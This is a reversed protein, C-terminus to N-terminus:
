VPASLSITTILAEARAGAAFAAFTDAVNINDKAVLVGDLYIFVGDDSLVDFKVNDLTQGTTFTTRYYSTFRSATAPLTITTGVNGITTGPALGDIGGVAFPAPGQIAEYSGAVGGTGFNPGNYQTLFDNEPLFWATEFDADPGGSGDPIVGGQPNMIKWVQNYPVIEVPPTYRPAYVTLSVTKGSDFNDTVTFTIPSNAPFPGFPTATNYLGSAPLTINTYFGTSLFTGNVTVDFTMTDDGSDVPTGNNNRVLNTVTAAITSAPPVVTISTVTTPSISASFEVTRNGENVPFPGFTTTVGYSGSAPISNSNWTAGANAGTVTTKFTFTDDSPDEATGADSRVIDSVVAEIIPQGIVEIGSMRLALGLDSSTLSNQHLSIALTHTGPALGPVTALVNGGPPQSLDITTILTETRAAPALANFGPADVMNEQAVLNGDLYIYVGDDCLIDFTVVSMPETTTFNTRFYCGRRSGSAPLTIATGVAGVPQGAAIGDVGGVAFPGPGTIAEYSGAVGASGFHPGDYQTLFSNEKLFWTSAFDTDVGGAPRPPLSGALPNMVQWSQNYNVLTKFATPPNVTVTTQTGADSETVFTVFAPGSAPFPGMTVPVGYAGSAVPGDSTWTAGTNNGTLTVKFSFEDDNVDVPTGKFDRVVDSVVAHITPTTPALATLEVLLGLDSSTNANNHNSIALTHTGASLTPVPVLVNVDDPSGGPLVGGVRLPVNFVVETNTADVAVATYTDPTGAAINVTAILTGDLYIFAGDDCVLRLNPEILGGAPVTFTTRYYATNRNATAPVTLATGPVPIGDVGGYAFPGAALGADASTLVLPDGVTAAGFGPGDYTTLFQAEPLQWTTDFDPDPTTDARPPLTGMPHLYNWAQSEPILVELQALAASPLGTLLALGLCVPPLKKTIKM